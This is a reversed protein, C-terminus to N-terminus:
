EPPNAPGRRGPAMERLLRRLAEVREPQTVQARHASEVLLALPWGLAVGIMGALLLKLALRRSDPRAAPAPRDIVTVRPTDRVEDIRAQEFGQRLTTVVEQHAGIVRSLRDYQAQLAPANRYERNAVLFRELADEAARLEAEATELREKIFAREASAQIQRTNLDFDNVEKVLRSALEASVGAWRTTVAVTVVGTKQDIGVVIRKRLRKIGDQFRAAETAGKARLLELLPRRPGGSDPLFSDVVMRGLIESSQVLDAYFEPSEGPNQGPVAVGFQAALGALRGLASQSRQPLFSASSSYNRPLALGLALTLVGLVMPFGLTLRWRRLLVAAIDLLAPAGDRSELGGETSM